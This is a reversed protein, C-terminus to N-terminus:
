LNIWVINDLSSTRGDGVQTHYQSITATTDKYPFIQGLYQINKHIRIVNEVKSKGREKHRVSLITLCRQMYSSLQAIHVYQPHENTFVAGVFCNLAIYTHSSIYYMEM